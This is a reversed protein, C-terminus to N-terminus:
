FIRNADQVTLSQLSRSREMISPDSYIPENIPNLRPPTHITGFYSSPSFSRQMAFTPMQSPWKLDWHNLMSSKNQLSKSTQFYKWCEQRIRVKYKLKMLRVLGCYPLLIMFVIVFMASMLVMTYYVFKDTCVKGSDILLNPREVKEPDPVEEPSLYVRLLEHVEEEESKTCNRRQSKSKNSKIARKRRGWSPFSGQGRSRDTCIVKM